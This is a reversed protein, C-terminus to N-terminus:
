EDLRETSVTVDDHGVQQCIAFQVLVAAVFAVLALVIIRNATPPNAPRQDGSPGPM